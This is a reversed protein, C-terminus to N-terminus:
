RQPPLALRTLAEELPVVDAYKADLDRLNQEHLELTRDACAEGLPLDDNALIEAGVPAPDVYATTFSWGVDRMALLVHAIRQGLGIIGIRYTKM